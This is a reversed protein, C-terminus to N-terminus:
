KLLDEHHLRVGQKVLQKQLASVDLKTFDDGM